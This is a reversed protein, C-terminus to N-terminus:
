HNGIYEVIIRRTEENMVVVSGGDKLDLWSSGGFIGIVVGVDLVGEYHLRDLTYGRRSEGAPGDM